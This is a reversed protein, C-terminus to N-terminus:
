GKSRPLRRRCPLPAAPEPEFVRQLVPDVFNSPVARDPRIKRLGDEKEITRPASARGTPLDRVAPSVSNLLSRSVVPKFSNPTESRTPAPTPAAMLALMVGGFFLVFAVFARPTLFGSESNNKQM